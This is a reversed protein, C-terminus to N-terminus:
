VWVVKWFAVFRCKWVRWIGQSRVFLWHHSWVTSVYAFSRSCSLVFDTNIICHNTNTISKRQVRVGFGSLGVPWGYGLVIFTLLPHLTSGILVWKINFIFGNWLWKTGLIRMLVTMAGVADALSTTAWSSLFKFSPFRVTLNSLFMASVPMCIVYLM